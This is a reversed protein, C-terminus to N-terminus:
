KNRLKWDNNLGEFPYPKLIFLHHCVILRAVLLSHITLYWTLTTFELPDAGTSRLSAPIYNTVLFLVITAALRVYDQWNM